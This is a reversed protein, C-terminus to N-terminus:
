ACSCRADSGNKIWSDYYSAIVQFIDYSFNADKWRDWEKKAYLGSWSFQSGYCHGQDLIDCDDRGEELITGKDPDNTLPQRFHWHFMPVVGLSCKWENILDFVVAGADDDVIFQIRVGAPNDFIRIRKHQM